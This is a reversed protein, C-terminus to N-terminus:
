RPPGPALMLKDSTYNLDTLYCGDSLSDCLRPNVHRELDCTQTTDPRRTWGDSIVTVYQWVRPRNAELTRARIQRRTHPTSKKTSSAIATPLHREAPCRLAPLKVWPLM